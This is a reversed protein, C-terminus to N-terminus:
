TARSGGPQVGARQGAAAFDPLAQATLRPDDLDIVASLHRIGDLSESVQLRGLSSPHADDAHPSAEADQAVSWHMLAPRATGSSGSSTLDWNLFNLGSAPVLRRFGTSVGAGVKM